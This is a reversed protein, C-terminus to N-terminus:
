KTNLEKYRKLMESNQKTLLKVNIAAYMQDRINNKETSLQRFNADAEEYKTKINNLETDMKVLDSSVELLKEEIFLEHKKLLNTKSRKQKIFKTWSQPLGELFGEEKEDSENEKEKQNAYMIVNCILALENFVQDWTKMIQQKIVTTQDSNIIMAKSYRKLHCYIAFMLSILHPYFMKLMKKKDSKLNNASSAQRYKKKESPHMLPDESRVVAEMIEKIEEISWLDNENFLLKINDELAKDEDDAKYDLNPTKRQEISFVRMNKFIENITFIDPLERKVDENEIGDLGKWETSVSDQGSYTGPIHKLGEKIENTKKQSHIPIPYPGKENPHYSLPHEGQEYDYPVNQVIRKKEKNYHKEKNIHRPILMAIGDM